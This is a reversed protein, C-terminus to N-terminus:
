DWVTAAAWLLCGAVLFRFFGATIWGFCFGMFLMSAGCAPGILARMHLKSKQNYIVEANQLRIEDMSMVSAQATEFRLGRTAFIAAIERDADDLMATGQVCRTLEREEARNGPVFSITNETNQPEM